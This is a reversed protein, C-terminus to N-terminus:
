QKCTTSQSSVDASDQQESENCQDKIPLFIKLTLNLRLMSSLIAQFVSERIVGKSLLISDFFSVDFYVYLDMVQNSDQLPSFAFIDKEMEYGNCDDLVYNVNEWNLLQTTMVLRLEM